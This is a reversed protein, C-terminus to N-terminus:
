KIEKNPYNILVVKCRGKFVLLSGAACGIIGFKDIV